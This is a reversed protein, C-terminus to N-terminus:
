AGHHRARQQCLASSTRRAHGFGSPAPGGPARRFVRGAKVTWTMNGVTITGGAEIQKVLQGPPLTEWYIRGKLDPNRTEFAKVLPALAFFYNGGVYLVLQPDIPNGHFDPLNDIEPVTFELGRGAVDNNAGQQWPPYVYDPYLPVRAPNTQALASAALGASLAFVLLSPLSPRCVSIRGAAIRAPNRGRGADARHGSGFPQDARGCTARPKAQRSEPERPAPCGGAGLDRQPLVPVCRRPAALGAGFQRAALFAGEEDQYNKPDATGAKQEVIFTNTMFTPGALKAIQYKDWTAQDYMSWHAPGHM